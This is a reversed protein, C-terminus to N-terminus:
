GKAGGVGELDDPMVHGERGKEWTECFKEILPWLLMRGEPGETMKSIAYSCKHISRLGNDHKRICGPDEFGKEKLLAQTTRVQLMSTLTAAIETHLM